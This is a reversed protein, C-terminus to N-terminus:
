KVQGGKHAKSYSIFARKDNSFEKRVKKNKDWTKELHKEYEHADMEDTDRGVEYEPEDNPGPTEPAQSTLINLTEDKLEEVALSVDTGNAVLKESIANLDVNRGNALAKAESQIDLIRQREIEVGNKFGDEFTAPETETEEVTETEPTDIVETETEEVVDQETETEEVEVPEVNEIEINEDAMTNGKKKNQLNALYRKLFAPMDAGDLMNENIVKELLGSLEPTETIKDLLSTANASLKVSETYGFMGRNAAPDDVVDDAYLRTIRLLAPLPENNEDTQETGDENLRFALDADFVISTGFAAPDSKALKLVYGALNGMPTDYASADLFLDGRTVGTKEDRRFNWVRGLFKGVASSSMNPHGFRSKVGNKISNGHTELQDLTTDDVEWNRMDGSIDSLRGKTMVQIGLIKGVGHEHVEDPLVELQNQFLAQARQMEIKKNIAKMTTM